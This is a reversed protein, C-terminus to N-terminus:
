YFLTDKEKTSNENLSKHAITKVFMTNTCFTFMTCVKKGYLVSLHRLHETFTYSRLWAGTEYMFVYVFSM